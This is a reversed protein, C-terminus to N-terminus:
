LGFSKKEVWFNFAQVDLPEDEEIGFKNFNELATYIDEDSAYWFHMGKLNDKHLFSYLIEGLTLTPNNEIASSMKMLFSARYNIQKM